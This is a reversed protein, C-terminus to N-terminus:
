RRKHCAGSNNNYGQLRGCSLSYLYNRDILGKNKATPQGIWIGFVALFGQIFMLRDVYSDVM